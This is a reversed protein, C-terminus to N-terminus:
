HQRSRVGVHCPVGVPAAEPGALATESLPGCQGLLVGLGGVPGGPRLIM